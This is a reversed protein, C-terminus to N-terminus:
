GTANPADPHRTEMGDHNAIGLNYCKITPLMRSGTYSRTVRPGGKPGWTKKYSGLRSIYFTQAAVPSSVCFLRLFCVAICSANEWPRITNRELPV